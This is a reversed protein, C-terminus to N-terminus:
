LEDYIFHNAIDDTAGEAFYKRYVAIAKEVKQEGSELFRETPKFIGLQHTEKDIVYFILPKGFLQEYIYAQSDYNYLWASKKFKNIDSTTKLDIVNANSIIDAKGKWMVGKIEKVAPEEFVNDDHYIEMFFNINGKMTAVMSNIEEVEKTLMVFELNSNECFSKYEKTNRSSVNVSLVKDVKHPELMLQHFLRGEALSKSDPRSKRFDKPNTLLTGVDSNSLFNKGLDGYYNADDRLENIVNIM